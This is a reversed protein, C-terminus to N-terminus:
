KLNDVIRQHDSDTLSRRRLATRIVSATKNKTILKFVPWPLTRKSFLHIASGDTQLNRNFRKALHQLTQLSYISIHQGGHLSFYDWEQPLPAHSPHLRTSFLLNDSRELMASIESM